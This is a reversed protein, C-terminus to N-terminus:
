YPYPYPYPYQNTCNRLTSNARNITNNLQSYCVNYPTYPDAVCDVFTNAGGVITNRFRDYCVQVSPYQQQQQALVQPQAQLRFQSSM